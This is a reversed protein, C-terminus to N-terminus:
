AVSKECIWFKRWHCKEDNWNDEVENFKTEGCDEDTSFYSNPEGPHWYSTSLLTGDVWKWTGETETDTLGIWFSRRFQRTFENEEKSNIIVLDAGKQLCDDRSDGWSKTDSSIFYFSSRFYVWGFTKLMRKLQDGEEKLNRIVADYDPADSSDFTKLMRKLQDREETLNRIVADYDPADSSDSTNLKRKLQDREETLNKIVADYDPADSSDSINLNRKLQDREETLNKIVADYDPADSIDSINLNRKLQDREETLNKIVADYNLALRLSINLAAQLICLLGLSLVVLKRDFIELMRNLQDGEETLERIVAKYNLKRAGSSYLALRLSINLAAQLICLLGLSVGVLRYLKKGSM